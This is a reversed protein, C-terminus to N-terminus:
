TILIFRCLQHPVNLKKAWPLRPPVSARPRPSNLAFWSVLEICKRQYLVEVSLAFHGFITEQKYISMPPMPDQPTWLLGVWWCLSSGRRRILVTVLLDCHGLITKQKCISMPCLTKEQDEGLCLHDRKQNPKKIASKHRLFAYKQDVAIM